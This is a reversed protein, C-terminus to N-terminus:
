SDGFKGQSYVEAYTDAITPWDFSESVHKQLLEASQRMFEPNDLAFQIKEKLNESNGAQFVLGRRELVSLNEPIDSYIVPVNQSVVQLLMM